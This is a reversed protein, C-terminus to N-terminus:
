YYVLIDYYMILDFCDLYNLRKREDYSLTYKPM